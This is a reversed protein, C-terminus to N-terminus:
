HAPTDTNPVAHGPEAPVEIFGHGSAQHCGNCSAAMRAFAARANAPDHSALAKELDPLPTARFATVQGPLVEPHGEKPPDASPLAETFAEDIEGREYEALEWRGAVLARGLLEFRRGVESM